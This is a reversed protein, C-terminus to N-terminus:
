KLFDRISNIFDISQQIAEQRRALNSSKGVLEIRSKLKTLSGNLHVVLKDRKEREAYFERM